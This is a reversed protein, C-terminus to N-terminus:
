NLMEINGKMFEQVAQFEKKIENYWFKMEERTMWELNKELDKALYYGKIISLNGLVGKITHLAQEIATLNEEYISDELNQLIEPSAEVFDNLLKKILNKSPLRNFFDNLDVPCYTQSDQISKISNINM